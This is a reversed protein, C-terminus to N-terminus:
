CKRIKRDYESHTLLNIFIVVDDNPIKNVLVRLNSNVRLSYLNKDYRCTIHKFALSKYTSDNTFTDIFKKHAEQKLIGSKLKKALDTKYSESYVINM